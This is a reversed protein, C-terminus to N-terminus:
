RGPGGRGRGPGPGPRLPLNSFSGSAGGRGRHSTSYGARYPGLLWPTTYYSRYHTSWWCRIPPNTVQGRPASPYIYRELPEQDYIRGGVRGSNHIIHVRGKQKYIYTITAECVSTALLWAGLILAIRKM